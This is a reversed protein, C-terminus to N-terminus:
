AQTLAAEPCCMRAGPVIFLRRVPKVSMSTEASRACRTNAPVRSLVEITEVLGVRMLKGTVPCILQQLDPDPVVESTRPLNPNLPKPGKKKDKREPRRSRPAASAPAENWAGEEIGELTGQGLDGTDPRKDSRSGYLQKQLEKVQLSLIKNESKLQQNERLLFSTSPESM